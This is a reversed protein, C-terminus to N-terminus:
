DTAGSTDATAATQGTPQVAIHVALSEIGRFAAIEFSESFTQFRNQGNLVSDRVVGMDLEGGDLYLWDGEAFLLATVMDPFGPVPSQDAALTYFQAPTVLDPDPVTLDAPNIGDLHWTVRVNRAAFWENILADTLALVQPGDGPMQRAMDARLLNTAWIPLITRLPVNLSLRHVSRYYAIVKDYTVLIDRVAGLLKTTYLKKSATTLQTLLKNEAFRAHAIDQAEQVSALFEPDFKTTMNSHTLCLYTAEVEATVVGPCAIEVCTKAVIPSATDNAKTWTGIGGTQTVGDLAPRYQIGGRDAQFRVLADRVPRETVGLVRIDYLTELPACLGAAVLANTEARAARQVTDVKERNTFADDSSSLQRDPSYTATRRLVTTRGTSGATDQVARAFAHSLGRQTLGHGDDSFGGLIKTTHSVRSGDANPAFDSPKQVGGLPRRGSATVADDGQQGEAGPEADTDTQDETEPEADPEADPEAAPEPQEVTTSETAAPGDTTLEALAALDDAFQAAVEKRKALEGNIATAKARLESVKAASDATIPQGSLESFEAAIATRADALEQDTADQLRGLIDANESV